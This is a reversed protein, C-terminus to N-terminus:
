LFGFSHLCLLLRIIFYSGVLAVMIMIILPRNRDM